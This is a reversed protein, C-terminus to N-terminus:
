EQLLLELPLRRCCQQPNLTISPPPPAASTTDLVQAHPCTHTIDPLHYYMVHPLPLKRNHSPHHTHISALAHPCHAKSAAGRGMGADDLM